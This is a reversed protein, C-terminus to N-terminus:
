ASITFLQSKAIKNYCDLQILCKATISFEIFCIYDDYIKTKDDRQGKAKNKRNLKM